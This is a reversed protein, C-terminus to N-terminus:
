SYVFTRGFTFRVNHFLKINKDFKLFKRVMSFCSESSFSRFPVTADISPYVPAHTLISLSISSEASIPVITPLVLPTILSESLRENNSRPFRENPRLSGKHKGNSQPRPFFVLYLVYLDFM